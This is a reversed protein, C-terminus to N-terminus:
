GRDRGFLRPSGRSSGKKLPRGGAFSEISRDLGSVLAIDGDRFRYDPTPMGYEEDEGNRVSILNIGYSQRLNAELLSIGDLREPVEV